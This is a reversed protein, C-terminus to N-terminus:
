QIKGISFKPNGKPVARFYNVLVPQKGFEIIKDINRFSSNLRSSVKKGNPRRDDYGYDPILVFAGPLSRPFFGKLKLGDYFNIQYEKELERSDLDLEEPIFIPEGQPVNKEIWTVALNRSDPKLDYLEIINQWPLFIAITGGVILLPLAFQSIKAQLLRPIKKIRSRLYRLFFLIGISCYICVFLYIFLINRLFHVQISSMYLLLSLPLSILVVGKKFDSVLSWLIGILVLVMFGYGFEQILAKGYYIFQPFGPAGVFGEHGIKYHYINFGIGDLFTNFDFVSYPVCIIFTIITVLILILFKQVRQKKSFFVIALVSPLLVFYYNYKSAIALGCLIGTIVSKPLFLDKDLKLIIYCVALIAFFVGIIDVNLYQASHFFYLSSSALLFPALYLAHKNSSAKYATIGALLMGIISILAFFLKAPFVLRWQSFYPYTVGGIDKTNKIEGHSVSNVYGLVFMGTTLYTPFSPWFFAHPNFDGTKLIRVAPKTLPEEDPHGVYPLSGSIKKYRAYSSFLLILVILLVIGKKEKVWTLKM